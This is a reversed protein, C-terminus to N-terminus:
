RTLILRYREELRLLMYAPIGLTNELKEAIDQTMTTEGKILEDLLRPSLDIREALEHASIGHHEMAELVTEGPPIAM